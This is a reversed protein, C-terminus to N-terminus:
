RAAAANMEENRAINAFAAPYSLGDSHCEGITNGHFTASAPLSAFINETTGDNPNKQPHLWLSISDPAKNM